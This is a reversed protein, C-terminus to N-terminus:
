IGRGGNDTGHQHCNSRGYYGVGVGPKFGFGARLASEFAGQMWSHNLSAHEGSFFLRGEPRIINAYLDEHQGPLFFAFAGQSLPHRDWSWTATRQVMGPEHLEPHFSGVADLIVQTRERPSLGALRRAQEGWTYSALLVGPGASVAPDQAEANDSPYYTSGSIL